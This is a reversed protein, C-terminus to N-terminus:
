AAALATPPSGTLQRVQDNVFYEMYLRLRTPDAYPVNMIRQTVPGDYQGTGSVTYTATAYCVQDSDSVYVTDDCPLGGSIYKPYGAPLPGGVNDTTANWACQVDNQDQFYDPPLQNDHTAGLVYSYTATGSM